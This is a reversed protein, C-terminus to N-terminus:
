TFTNKETILVESFHWDWWPKESIGCVNLRLPCIARSKIEETQFTMWRHSLGQNAFLPKNFYFSLSIHRSNTSVYKLCMSWQSKELLGTARKTGERLSSSWFCRQIKMALITEQCHAAASMPFSQKILQSTTYLIARYWHFDGEAAHLIGLLKSAVVSRSYRCGIYVCKLWFTHTILQEEM